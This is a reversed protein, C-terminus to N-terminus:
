IPDSNVGTLGMTEVEAMWRGLSVVDTRLVEMWGDGVGGDRERGWNQGGGDKDVLSIILSAPFLRRLKEECPPNSLLINLPEELGGLSLVSATEDGTGPISVLAKLMLGSFALGRSLLNEGGPVPNKLRRCLSCSPGTPSLFRRVLVTVLAAVKKLLALFESLKFPVRSDKETM